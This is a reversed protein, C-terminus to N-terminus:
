INSIHLLYCKHYKGTQNQRRTHRLILGFPLPRNLLRILPIRLLFPRHTAVIYRRIGDILIFEPLFLGKIRFNQVLFQGHGLVKTEICEADIQMLTQPICVLISELATYIFEKIQCFAMTDLENNCEKCISTIMLLFECESRLRLRNRSHM